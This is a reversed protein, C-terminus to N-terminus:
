FVGHPCWQVNPLVHSSIIFQTVAVVSHGSILLDRRSSGSSIIIIVVIRVVEKV